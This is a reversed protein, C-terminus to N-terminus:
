GEVIERLADLSRRPYGELSYYASLIAEADEFRTLDLYRVLNRLDEEDRYGEGTRLAVRISWLSTTIDVPVRGVM